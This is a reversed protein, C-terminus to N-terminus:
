CSLTEKACDVYGLFRETRLWVGFFVCFHEGSYLVRKLFRECGEEALDIDTARLVSLSFHTVRPLAGKRDVCM